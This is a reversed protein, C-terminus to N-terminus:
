QIIVSRKIKGHRRDDYHIREWISICANRAAACSQAELSGRDERAIHLRYVECIADEVTM